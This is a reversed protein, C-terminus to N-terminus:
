FPSTQRPTNWNRAREEEGAMQNLMKWGENAVSRAKEVTGRLRQVERVLEDLTPEIQLRVGRGRETMFLFAALGGLVAGVTIATVDRQNM